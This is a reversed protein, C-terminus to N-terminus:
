LTTSLSRQLHENTVEQNTYVRELRPGLCALLQRYSGYGWKAVEVPSIHPGFIEAKDGIKVDDIDTIDINMFDMCVRGAYPALKGNLWVRGKGSYELHLGDHYGISLVAVRAKERKELYCGAYGVFEGQKVAHISVVSAYLSLSPLLDLSDVPELGFLIPGLRVLNCEPQPFKFISCSSGMHLWHPKPSITSCFNWFSEKQEHSQTDFTSLSSASFHSMAGKLNIQPNKSIISLAELAEQNSLGLRHMGVDLHLHLHLTESSGELEQQIWVLEDLSNLGLEIGLQAARLFYGRPCTLSFLPIQIGEDRLFFAEEVWSVGLYPVGLSSFLRAMEIIGLGYGNAKIMPMISTGKPLRSLVKQYNQKIAECNIHLQSYGQM